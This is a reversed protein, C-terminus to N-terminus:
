EQDIGLTKYIIYRPRKKVENFIRAIYEGLIGISLLQIGGIFMTAVVLTAFGPVDIGYWMTKFVIFTAYSLALFSIMFGIVSWVRLPINSFSAIGTLALETLYKYRMRSRGQKRKSVEFPIGISRFGVWAYLGKMFLAREECELIAKIVKADMLRFDGANPPITVDTLWGMMRYFLEATHRKIWSEDKRNQRVGYVMDYGEVWKELFQPICEFPHQFDGDLMIIVEGKSYNLGAMLAAEKGFQRSFQILKISNSLLARNQIITASGDSSGDDVFIIEYHSTTQDLLKSLSTIFEDMTAKENFVPVICTIALNRQQLKQLRSEITM